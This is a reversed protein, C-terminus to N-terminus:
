FANQYTKKPECHLINHSSQLRIDCRSHHKYLKWNTARTTDEARCLFQTWPIASFGKVMKLTEILDARSRREELSWLQLKRLREEYSLKKLEPFMGTFRHQVRELLKKDKVLYPNWAPSCFELHPRVLSKYLLIPIKPDKFRSQGVSSAM